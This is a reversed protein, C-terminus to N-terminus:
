LKIICLLLQRRIIVRVSFFDILLGTTVPICFIQGFFIGLGLLLKNSYVLNNNQQQFFFIFWVTSNTKCPILIYHHWIKWKSSVISDSEGELICEPCQRNQFFKLFKNVNLEFNLFSRLWLCYGIHVISFQSSLKAVVKWPM